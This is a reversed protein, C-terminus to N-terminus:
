SVKTLHIPDSFRPGNLQLHPSPVSVKYQVGDAVVIQGPSLVAANELESRAKAIDAQRQAEDNYCRLMTGASIIWVEPQEPGLDPFCVTSFRVRATTIWGSLKVHDNHRLEVIGNSM